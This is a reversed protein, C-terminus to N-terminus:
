LLLLLSVQFSHSIFVSYSSPTLLGHFYAGQRNQPAILHPWAWSQSILTLLTCGWGTAVCCSNDAKRGFIWTNGNVPYQKLQTHSPQETHAHQCREGQTQWHQQCDKITENLDAEQWTHITPLSPGSYMLVIESQQCGASLLIPSLFTETAAIKHGTITQLTQLIPYYLLPSCQLPLALLESLGCPVLFAHASGILSFFLSTQQTNKDVSYM